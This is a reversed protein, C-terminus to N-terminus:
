PSTEVSKYSINRHFRIYDYTQRHREWVGDEELKYSIDLPWKSVQIKGYIENEWYRDNLEHWFFFFILYIFNYM